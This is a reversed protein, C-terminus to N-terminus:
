SLKQVIEINLKYHLTPSGNAKILKEELIGIAKLKRRIRDQQRRTLTTEEEIEAKTKYIFGDERNGKDSWYYLQQFYIAEEIGGLVRALQPHFAIPKELQIQIKTM